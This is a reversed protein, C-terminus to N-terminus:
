ECLFLGKKGYDYFLNSSYSSISLVDEISSAEHSSRSFPHLIQTIKIVIKTRVYKKAHHFLRVLFLIFDAFNQLSKPQVM